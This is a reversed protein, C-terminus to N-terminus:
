SVETKEYRQLRDSIYAFITLVVAAVAYPPVTMLNSDAGEVVTHLQARFICANSRLKEGYGM